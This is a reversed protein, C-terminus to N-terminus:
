TLSGMALESESTMRFSRRHIETLGLKRLAQRHSLTPYGKNQAFGYGPFTGALSQMYRDRWVKAIISAAAISLCKQDGQVIASAPAVLPDKPLFKGDVLIHHPRLKLAELARRIALHSAHFINLQDIELVSAVGIGVSKAFGEILPALQERQIASLKKSDNVEALWPYQDFRIEEPLLVAGAVVPGALCGRGVEDAGAIWKHPYGAQIEFSLTPRQKASFRKLTSRKV